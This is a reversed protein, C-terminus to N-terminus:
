NTGSALSAVEREGERETERGRERIFVIAYKILAGMYTCQVFMAVQFSEFVEARFSEYKTKKLDIIWNEKSFYHANYYYNSVYCYSLFTKQFIIERPLRFPYQFVRFPVKQAIERM